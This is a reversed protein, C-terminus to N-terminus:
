KWFLTISRALTSLLRRFCAESEENSCVELERRLASIDATQAESFAALEHVQEGSTSVEHSCAELERRLSRNDSQQADILADREQVRGLVTSVEVSSAGLILHLASISADQISHLEVLKDAEGRSTAAEQRLALVDAGRSACLSVLPRNQDRYTSAEM